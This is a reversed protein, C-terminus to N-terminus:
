ESVKPAVTQASIKKLKQVKLANLNSYLEVQALAKPGKLCPSSKPHNKFFKRKTGGKCKKLFHTKQTVNELNGYRPWEPVKPATKQAM